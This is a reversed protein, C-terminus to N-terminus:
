KKSYLRQLQKYLELEENSINKNIQIEVTLIMDGYKNGQEMGCNNLRIKQGNQTNPSIKVSVNGQM